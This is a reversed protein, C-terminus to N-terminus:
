VQLSTEEKCKNSPRPNAKVIEAAISVIQKQNKNLSAIKQSVRANFWIGQVKDTATIKKSKQRGMGTKDKKITEARGNDKNPCLSL